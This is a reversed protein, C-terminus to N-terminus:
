RVDGVTPLHARGARHGVLEQGALTQCYGSSLCGGTMSGAEFYPRDEHIECPRDWVGGVDDCDEKVNPTEKPDNARKNTKSSGPIICGALPHHKEYEYTETANRNDDVSSINLVDFLGLNLGHGRASAFGIFKATVIITPSLVFIAPCGHYLKVGQLSEKYILKNRNSSIAIRGGPPPVWHSSITIVYKPKFGGIRRVSHVMYKSVTSSQQDSGYERHYSTVLDGVVVPIGSIKDGEIEITVFVETHPGRRFLLIRHQPLSHIESVDVLVEIRKQDNQDIKKTTTFGEAGAPESSIPNSIQLRKNERLLFANTESHLIHDGIRLSYSNNYIVM